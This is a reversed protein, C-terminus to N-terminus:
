EVVKKQIVININETDKDMELIIYLVINILHFRIYWLSEEGNDNVKIRYESDDKDDYIIKKYDKDINFIDSAHGSKIKIENVIKAM